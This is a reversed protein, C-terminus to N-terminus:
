TVGNQADRLEPLALQSQSGELAKQNWADEYRSKERASPPQIRPPLKALTRM